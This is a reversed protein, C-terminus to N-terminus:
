MNLTIDYYHFAGNEFREENVRFRFAQTKFEEPRLITKSLSRNRSTNSHISLYLERM